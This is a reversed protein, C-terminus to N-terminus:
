NASRAWSPQTSTEESTRTVWTGSAASSRGSPASRALALTSGLGGTGQKAPRDQRNGVVTRVSLTIFAAHVLCSPRKAGSNAGVAERESANRPLQAPPLAVSRTLTARTLPASPSVVDLRHRFVAWTWYALRPRTSTAPKVIASKRGPASSRGALAPHQAGLVVAVVVVAVVVIVVAVIVIVVEVVLESASSREAM